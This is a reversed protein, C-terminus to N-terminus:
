KTRGKSYRVYETGNKVFVSVHGENVVVTRGNSENTVFVAGLAHSTNVASEFATRMDRVYWYTGHILSSLRYM